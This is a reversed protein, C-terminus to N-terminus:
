KYEEIFLVHDYFWPSHFCCAHLVCPLSSLRLCCAHLVCPLSSLRL